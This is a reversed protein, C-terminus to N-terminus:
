VGFLKKFEEQRNQSLIEEDCFVNPVNLEKELAEQMDFHMGSTYLSLCPSFMEIRSLKQQAEDSTLYEMFKQAYFAKTGEGSFAIYQVLDTYGSLYLTSIGGLRGQSQRLNLRALDRQTGLLAVFSDKALFREYAQYSTLMDGFFNESTGKANATNLAAFPNNFDALGLGLSMLRTKSKDNKEYSLDFLTEVSLANGSQTLMDDFAAAFYGGFAWPLAFVSGGIEGSKAIDDRVNMAGTYASLKTKVLSGVGGGFSILDFTDGNQLKQRVQEYTYSQVSIFVGKYKSEFEIARGKLFEARSGSGGEFSDVHWLTLVGKYQPLSSQNKGYPIDFAYLPVAVMFLCFILAAATKKFGLM